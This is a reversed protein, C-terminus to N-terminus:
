ESYLYGIEEETLIRNYIRINDIAGIYNTGIKLTNVNPPIFVDDTAESSGNVIIEFTIGSDAFLVAHIWTENNVSSTGEIQDAFLGTSASYILKNGNLAFVMSDTGPASPEEDWILFSGADDTTKFWLSITCTDPLTFFDLSISATGDFSLAADEEGNHGPYSVAGNIVGHHPDTGYDQADNDLPYYHILGETPINSKDDTADDSCSFLFSMFILLIELAIFSKIRM